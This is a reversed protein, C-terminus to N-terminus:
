SSLYSWNLLCYGPDTTGRAINKKLDAVKQWYFFSLWRKGIFFVFFCKASLFVFFCKAFLLFMKGIFFVFFRKGHWMEKCFCAGTTESCGISGRALCQQSLTSLLGYFIWLIKLSPAWFITFSVFFKSPPDYIWRNSHFQFFDGQMESWLRAGMNWIQFKVIIPVTHQIIIIMTVVMIKM